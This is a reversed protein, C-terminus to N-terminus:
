GVWSVTNRAVCLKLDNRCANRADHVRWEIQRDEINFGNTRTQTSEIINSVAIGLLAISMTVLAFRRYLM